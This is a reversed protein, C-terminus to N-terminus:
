LNTFNAPKKQNVWEIEDRSCNYVECIKQILKENEESIIEKGDKGITALAKDGSELAVITNESVGIKESAEKMTMHCADRIAKLILKKM